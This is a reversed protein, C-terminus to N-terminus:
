PGVRLMITQTCGSVALTISLDPSQSIVVQVNSCISQNIQKGCIGLKVDDVIGKYWPKTLTPHM